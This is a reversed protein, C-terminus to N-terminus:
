GNSIELEMLSYDGVKMNKPYIGGAFTVEEDPFYTKLLQYEEDM